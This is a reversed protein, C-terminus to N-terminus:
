IDNRNGGDFKGSEKLITELSIVPVGSKDELGARYKNEHRVDTLIMADVTPWKETELLVPVDFALADNEIQKDTIFCIETECGSAKLDKLMYSTFM